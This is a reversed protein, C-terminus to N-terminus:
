EPFRYALVQSDDTRWVKRGAVVVGETWRLNEILIECGPQTLESCVDPGCSLVKAWRPEKASSEHHGAVFIGSATTQTFQGKNDINDLFQFIIHNRIATINM